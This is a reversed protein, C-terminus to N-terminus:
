WTFILPAAVLCILVCALVVSFCGARPLQMGRERAMAEVASKADALGAGTKDRYLKIAAIKKGQELLSVVDGMDSDAGEGPPKPQEGRQLADIADVAEKLGVGTRQRYLKVARIKEGKKVLEVLDDDSVPAEPDDANPLEAHCDRCTKAGSPNECDCFPCRPM